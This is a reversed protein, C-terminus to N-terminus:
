AELTENKNYVSHTILGVFPLLGGVDITAVEIDLRFIRGESLTFVPNIMKGALELKNIVSAVTGQMSHPIMDVNFNDLDRVCFEINPTGLSTNAIWELHTIVIKENTTVAEINTETIETDNDTHAYDEMRSGM